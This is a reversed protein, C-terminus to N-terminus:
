NSRSVNRDKSACQGPVLIDDARNLAIIGVTLAFFFQDLYGFAFSGSFQSGVLQFVYMSVASRQVLSFWRWRKLAIVLPFLTLVSFLLLGTIGTEYLMELYVNHPYNKSGKTRRLLWDPAGFGEIVPYMGIGRGFLLRDPEASIRHWTQSWIAM